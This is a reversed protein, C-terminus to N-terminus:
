NTEPNTVSLGELHALHCLNADACVFADLPALRSLDLAV